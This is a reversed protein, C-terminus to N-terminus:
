EYVIILVITELMALSVLVKSGNVKGKRTVKRM